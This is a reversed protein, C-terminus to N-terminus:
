NRLNIVLFCVKSTESEDAKNENGANVAIVRPFCGLRLKIKIPRAKKGISRRYINLKGNWAYEFM